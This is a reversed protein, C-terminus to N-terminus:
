AARSGARGRPAARMTPRAARAAPMVLRMVGCESRWVKTVMARSAPWASRSMAIEVPWESVRM